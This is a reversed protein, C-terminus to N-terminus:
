NNRKSKGNIVEKFYNNEGKLEMYRILPKKTNGKLNEMIQLNKEIKFKVFNIAEEENKELAKLPM